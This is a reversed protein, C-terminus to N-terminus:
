ISGHRRVRARRVGQVGQVGGFGLAQLGEREPRARVGQRVGERVGMQEYFREQWHATDYLRSLRRDLIVAL